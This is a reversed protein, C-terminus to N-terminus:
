IFNVSITSSKQRSEGLKTLLSTVNPKGNRIDFSSQQSWPESELKLPIEVSYYMKIIRNLEIEYYSRFTLHIPTKPILFFGNISIMMGPVVSPKRVFPHTKFKREKNLIWLAWKHGHYYQFKLVWWYKVSLFRSQFFRARHGIEGLSLIDDVDGTKFYHSISWIGLELYYEQFKSISHSWFVYRKRFTHRCSTRSILQSLFERDTSSKVDLILPRQNSTPTIKM